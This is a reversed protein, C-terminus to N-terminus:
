TLWLCPSMQKGEPAEETATKQWLNISWSELYIYGQELITQGWITRKREEKGKKKWEPFHQFVNYIGEINPLYTISLHIYM